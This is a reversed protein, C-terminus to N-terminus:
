IEDRLHELLPCAGVGIPHPRECQRAFESLARSMRRLSRIRAEIDTIKAAARARVDACTARASVRLNVLESIEPLTFGLQQARRIFRIRAAADAPYLRYNAASRAPKLLLGAREYFRVTTVGVGAERALAGITQSVPETKM